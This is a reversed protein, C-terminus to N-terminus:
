VAAPCCDDLDIPEGEEIEQMLQNALKFGWNTPRNRATRDGFSEEVTWTSPPETKRGVESRM